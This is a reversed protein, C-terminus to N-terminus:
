LVDHKDQAPGAWARGVVLCAMKFLVVSISLSAWYLKAIVNKGTKECDPRGLCPGIVRAPRAVRHASFRLGVWGQIRTTSAHDLINRTPDHKSGTKKPWAQTAWFLRAWVKLDLPTSAPVTGADPPCQPSSTPSRPLLTLMTRHCWTSPTPRNCLAHPLAPLPCSRYHTAPTVAHTSSHWVRTKHTWFGPVFYDGPTILDLRVCIIFLPISVFTV